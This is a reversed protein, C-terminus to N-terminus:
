RMEGELVERTAPRVVRRGVARFARQVFFVFAAAVLVYLFGWRDKATTLVLAHGSLALPAALALMREAVAARVGRLLEVITDGLLLVLLVSILHSNWPVFGRWPRNTVLRIGEVFLPACLTAIAAYTYVSRKRM